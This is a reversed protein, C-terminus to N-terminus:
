ALLLTPKVIKCGGFMLETFGVAPVAPWGIVIVPEPKPATCPLLVTVNLPAIALTVLQFVLLMATVTGVEAVVPGTMTVTAPIALLAAANM